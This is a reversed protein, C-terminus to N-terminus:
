LVQKGENRQKKFRVYREGKLTFNPCTKHPNFYWHPYVKNAPINYKDTLIEVLNELATMQYDSFLYEGTLCIGISDSNHGKTHAGMLTEPRGKKIKGSKVIIWHYGIDSFEKGSTYYNGWHTYWDKPFTHLERISNINDHRVLDSASCHLIIKNVQM